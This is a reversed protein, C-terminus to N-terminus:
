ILFLIIFLLDRTFYKPQRISVRSGTQIVELEERAKSFVASNMYLSPFLEAHSPLQMNRTEPKHIVVVSLAYVFMYPNIRDRCYAGLSLLEDQTKMAAFHFFLDDIKDNCEIDFFKIGFNKSELCLSSLNIRSKVIINIKIM